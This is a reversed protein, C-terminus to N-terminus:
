CGGTGAHSCAQSLLSNFRDDFASAGLYMLATNTPQFSTVAEVRNLALLGTPAGAPNVGFDQIWPGGSAGGKMASGYIWTNSGGSEFTQAGTQEMRECSDLNCPYGLLTLNNDAIPPNSCNTGGCYKYGLFGTVQGIKFPGKGGIEQDVMVLMGIDQQNPVSGNQYWANTTTVYSWTWSGNPAAGSRESPVFLFKTYFYQDATTTSGHSVCHGATVVVRFRLVSASCFLNDGTRPDTAFLKGATSYPYTTTAADPFVRTTTFYAGFSSTAAPAVSLQAGELDAGWPILIKNGESGLQVSPAAGDASQSLTKVAPTQQVVAAGSANIAVHLEIPKASLLRQPTWYAEIAAQSESRDSPAAMGVVGRVDSEQAHTMPVANSFALLATVATAFLMTKKM